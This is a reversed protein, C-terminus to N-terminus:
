KESRPRVLPQSSGTLWRPRMSTVWSRASVRFKFLGTDCETARGAMVRDFHFLDDEACHHTKGTETANQPNM